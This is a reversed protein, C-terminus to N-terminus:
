EDLKPGLVAPSTSTFGALAIRLRAALDPALPHAGYSAGLTDLATRYMASRHRLLAQRPAAPDADQPDADDTGERASVPWSDSDHEDAVPDTRASDAVAVPNRLDPDQGVASLVASATTPHIRPADGDPWYHAWLRAVLPSAGSVSYRTGNAASARATRAIATIGRSSCFTLGALDVILHDPRRDLVDDLAADLVAFSGLDVDGAVRLVIIDGAPSLLTAISCRCRGSSVLADDAPHYLSKDARTRPEPAISM